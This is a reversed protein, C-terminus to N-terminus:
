TNGTRSAAEFSYPRARGARLEACLEEVTNVARELETACTLFWQPSVFHADSGGVATLGLKETAIMGAANEGNSNQGNIAEAANLAPGLRALLDDLRPGFASDRFPHSPIAIGGEGHVVEFLHDARNMRASLDFRRRLERNVGFILLHGFDTDAEIGKFILVGYRESLEGYTRDLEADTPYLRHETFCIADLLHNRAAVEVYQEASVNSDSSLLTHVHLDVLM